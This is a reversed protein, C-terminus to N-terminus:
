RMRLWSHHDSGTVGASSLNFYELTWTWEWSCLFNSVLRDWLVFLFCYACVRWSHPYHSSVCLGMLPCHSLSQLVCGQFPHQWWLGGRLARSFRYFLLCFWQLLWLPHMVGLFHHRGSVVSSVSLHVWLSWPLVPDLWEFNWCESPLTAMPEWQLWSATETPVWRFSWNEEISDKSSIAAAGWPLGMGPLHLHERLVCLFRLPIKYVKPRMKRQKLMKTM